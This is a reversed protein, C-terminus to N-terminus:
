RGEASMGPSRQPSNGAAAARELKRLWFEVALARMLAPANVNQGHGARQLADLFSARDVHGREVVRLPEREVLPRLAPRIQRLRLYLAKAPGGKSTRQAIEPPLVRAMARRQLSRMDHPRLHQEMPVAFALELLDRDAFPYRAEIEPDVCHRLRISDVFDHLLFAFQRRSPSRFTSLDVHYRGAFRRNIWPPVNSPARRRLGLRARFADGSASALLTSMPEALGASWDKAERVAARLRLSALHDGIVPPTETQSQCVHDGGFGSLRVTSGREAMLAAVHANMKAGTWYPSPAEYPYEDEISSFIPADREYVHHATRGLAREAIAIFPGDDSQAIEEYIHSVTQLADHPRGEGRMILDATAAISSSDVGGSLDAFVPGESQLRNRVSRRFLTFFREAYEADSAFRIESAPDLKWYVRNSQEARTFTIVAAPPVAAIAAYPSVDPRGPPALVAAIYDDDPERDCGTEDLLPQLRSSWTIAEPTRHYFLPRVGFCDRALLLRATRADWLALAFEGSLHTLFDDHWRRYAAAVISESAAHWPLSLESRLDNPDDLRGDFSITLGDDIAPELM